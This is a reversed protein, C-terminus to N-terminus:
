ASSSSNRSVFYGSVGEDYGDSDYARSFATVSVDRSVRRNSIQVSTDMRHRVIGQQISLENAARDSERERAHSWRTQTRIRSADMSDAETTRSM